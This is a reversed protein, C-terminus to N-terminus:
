FSLNALCIPCVASNSDPHHVVHLDKGLDSIDSAITQLKLKAKSDINGFFVTHSVMM